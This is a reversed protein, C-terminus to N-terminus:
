FLSVVKAISSTIGNVAKAWQVADELKVLSEKLGDIGAKISDAQAQLDNRIEQMLSANLKGISATFSLRASFFDFQKQFELKSIEAEVATSYLHNEVLRLYELTAKKTIRTQVADPM